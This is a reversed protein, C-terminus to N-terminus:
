VRPAGIVEVIAPVVPDPDQLTDVTSEFVDSSFHILTGVVPALTPFKIATEVAGIAVGVVETFMVLTAGVGIVLRGAPTQAFTTDPFVVVHLYGSEPLATL